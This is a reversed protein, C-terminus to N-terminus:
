PVSGAARDERFTAPSEPSPPLLEVAVDDEAFVVRVGRVEGSDVASRWRDFARRKARNKWVRHIIVHSVGLSRMLELCPPDPLGSSCTEQALLYTPPLHASYGNVLPRWHATSYLMYLLEDAGPLMPLELLASVDEANDSEALWHYVPPYEAPLPVRHWPLASPALELSMTALIALGAAMAPGRSLRARLGDLARAAFFATALTTFVYFRSPVRMKGLGPVIRALPEYVVPFALALCVAGVLLVARDLPPMTSWRIPLNGGWRRRLLLWCLLSAGIAIGGLTYAAGPRANMSRSGDLWGLTYLDSAVFVLGCTLASAALVARRRRPIERIPAVRYRRLLSLMAGLALLAPLLGPFLNKEAFWQNAEYGRAIARLPGSAAEFYPSHYSPTLLAASTAGFVRYNGSGWTTDLGHDATLYPLFVAAAVASAAVLTLLLIRRGRPALWSRNAPALSAAIAVLPVHIMYALYSGGTMHLTYFALFALAYRLRPERLLRYWFWIVLPIWQIMFIQFHSLQSWHYPSFAFALGGCFSALRSAAAQRLVWFMATASLPLASLLLLNYAGISTGTIGQLLLAQVAPGILYDSLALTARTPHFFPANWLDPLGALLQHRDWVLIYLNFLPDGIDPTVHDRFVRPFPRMYILSLASFFCFALLAEVGHRLRDAAPRRDQRHPAPNM